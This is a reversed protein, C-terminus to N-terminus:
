GVVWRLPGKHLINHCCMNSGHRQRLVNQMSLEQKFPVSGCMKMWIQPGEMSKLLDACDNAGGANGIQRWSLQNQLDVAARPLVPQGKSRQALATIQTCTISNNRQQEKNKAM